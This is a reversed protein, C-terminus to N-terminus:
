GHAQPSLVANIVGVPEGGGEVVVVGSDHLAAADVGPETDVGMRRLVAAMLAPRARQGGDDIKLAVARGDHPAGIRPALGAGLDSWRAALNSYVFDPAHICTLCHAV